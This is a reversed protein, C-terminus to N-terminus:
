ESEMVGISVLDDEYSKLKNNEYMDKAMEEAEEKSDAEIEADYYRIVKVSLDYKM